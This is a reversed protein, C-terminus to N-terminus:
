TPITVRVTTGEGPTSFAEITGHMLDLIRRAIFLGLGTGGRESKTTFFPTFIRERDEPSIGPGSDTIDVVIRGDELVTALTLSGREHMADLANTLVTLFVQKLEGEGAEVAPLDTGYRRVVAVDRLRGQFGILELSKELVGSVDVPGKRYSGGGVFSLMSTTIRKCRTIEEQIISLYERFRGADMKGQEVRRLLADACGAISALPNNIEHAIGSAMQGLAALRESVVLRRERDREETIDEAIHIFRSIEEGGAAYPFTSLRFIRGTKRDGVEKTAARGGELAEKLPCLIEEDVGAPLVARCTRDVLDRPHRGLFEAYARNVKLIILDRDFIAIPDTIGDFTHQWEKQSLIIGRLLEEREQQSRRQATVDRSIGFVLDSAPDTGPLLTMTTDLRVEKGPFPFVDEATYNRGTRFVEAVNTEMAGHGPPFLEALTFGTAREPDMGLLVAGAQNVYVVRFARDVIFIVDTATEALTRFRRESRTLDEHGAQIEVLLRTKEGDRQEIGEAMRNLCEEVRGIEDPREVPVRLHYDGSRYDLLYRELQELRDLVWHRALMMIVSGAVLFMVGAIATVGAFERLTFAWYSEQSFDMILCGLYAQGPDHCAHCAQSNEIPFAQRFYITDGERLRLDVEEHCGGCGKEERSFWRGALGEDSSAVVEGQGDVISIRMLPAFAAFHRTLQIGMDSRGRLMERRLDPLVLQQVSRAMVALRAEENQRQYLHIFIGTVGSMVAFLIVLSLILRQKLSM